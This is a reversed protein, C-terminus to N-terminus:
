REHDQRSLYNSLVYGANRSILSNVPSNKYAYDLNGVGKDQLGNKLQMEGVMYSYMRTLYSIKQGALGPHEKQLYKGFSIVANMGAIRESFDSVDHTQAISRYILNWSYKEAVREKFPELSSSTDLMRMYSSVTDVYARTEYPLDNRLADYRPGYRDILKNVKTIGANHKAAVFRYEGRFFELSEKLCFVGSRINQRAGERSPQLSMEVDLASVGEYEKHFRMHFDREQNGQRIGIPLFQFVGKADDVSTIINGDYGTQRILSETAAIALSTHFLKEFSSNENNFSSYMESFSRINDINRNLLDHYRDFAFILENEVSYDQRVMTTNDPSILMSLLDMDFGSTGSVEQSSDPTFSKERPDLYSFLTNYVGSHVNGSSFQSASNIGDLTFVSASYIMTGAFFATLVSSRM